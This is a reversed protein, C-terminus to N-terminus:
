GENMSRPVKAGLGLLPTTEQPVNTETTVDVDYLPAVEKAEISMFYSNQLAAYM